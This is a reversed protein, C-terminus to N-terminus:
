RVVACAPAASSAHALRCGSYDPRSHHLVCEKGPSRGLRIYSAAFHLCAVAISANCNMLSLMANHQIDRRLLTLQAYFNHM